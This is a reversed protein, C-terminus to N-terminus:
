KRKFNVVESRFGFCNPRFDVTFTNGKLECFHTTPKILIMLPGNYQITISDVSLSYIFYSPNRYLDRDSRFEILDVSDTSIWSGLLQNYDIKESKNCSSILVTILIIFFSISCSKFLINKMQNPISNKLVFYIGSM